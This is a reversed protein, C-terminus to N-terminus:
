RYAEKRQPVELITVTKTFDDVSYIVRYHGCRIRYFIESRGKLKSCGRPRPNSALALIKRDVLRFDQHSLADLDRQGSKTIIIHYM